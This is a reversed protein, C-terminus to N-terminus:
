LLIEFAREMVHVAITEFFARCLAPILPVFPPNTEDCWTLHSYVFEGSGTMFFQFESFDKQLCPEDKLMTLFRGLSQKMNTLFAKPTHDVVTSNTGFLIRRAFENANELFHLLKGNSCGLMISLETPVMNVKQALLVKGVKGNKSEEDLVSRLYITSTEGLLNRRKKNWERALITDSINYHLPPYDRPQTNRVFLYKESLYQAFVWDRYMVEFSDDAKPLLYGYSRNQKSPLFMKKGVQRAIGANLDEVSPLDNLLYKASTIPVSYNSSSLDQWVVTIEPFNGYHAHRTQRSQIASISINWQSPKSTINQVSAPFLNSIKGLQTASLGSKIATTVNHLAREMIPATENELIALCLANQKKQEPLYRLDCWDMDYYIFKGSTMIFLQFDPQLCPENKFITVAGKINEKMTALFANRTQDVTRFNTGALVRSALGYANNMFKALKFATCGLMLSLEPPVMEVKQALILRGIKENKAVHGMFGRRKKQWEGVLAKDSMSYYIPPSDRPLTQSMFPYKESLYQAFVWDRYTKDFLNHDGKPLLYGVSKDVAPLFVKQGAQTANGADKNDPFPLDNIFEYASVIPVLRLGPPLKGWRLTPPACNKYILRKRSGKSLWSISIDWDFFESKNKTEANNRISTINQSFYSQTNNSSSSSVSVTGISNSQKFDHPSTKFTENQRIARRIKGNAPRRIAQELTEMNGNQQQQRVMRHMTINITLFLVAGVLLLWTTNRLRRRVNIKKKQNGKKM